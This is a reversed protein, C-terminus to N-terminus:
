FITMSCRWGSMQPSNSTWKWSGLEWLIPRGCRTWRTRLRYALITASTYPGVGHHGIAVPRVALRLFDEATSHLRNGPQQAAALGSCVSLGLILAGLRARPFRSRSAKAAM